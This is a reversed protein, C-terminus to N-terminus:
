GQTLSKRSINRLLFATLTFTALTIISMLFFTAIDDFNMTRLLHYFLDCLHIAISISTLATVWMDLQRVSYFWILGAHLGIALIGSIVMAPNSSLITTRSLSVIQILNYLPVIAIILLFLVLVIRIWRGELWGIARYACYEKIALIGTNIILLISFILDDIRNDGYVVQSWYFMITLNFLIIWIFWLPASRALITWPLILITWALFLQYSDAGTQYIQGFVALFVGVLISAGILFLKSIVEKSSYSWAGFICCILGAELTSFKHLTSMKQWNFAFFFIIGVLLLSIGLSLLLNATWYGWRQHPYLFELALDHAEQNIFQKEYLNEVTKRNAPIEMLSLSRENEIAM